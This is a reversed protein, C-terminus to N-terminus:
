SLFFSDSPARAAKKLDQPGCVESHSFRVIAELERAYEIANGNPDSKKIQKVARLTVPDSESRELRVVGYSGQGLIPTQDHSRWRQIISGRGAGQILHETSSQLFETELRLDSVQRSLRPPEAM